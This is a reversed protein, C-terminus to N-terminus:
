GLFAAGHCSAAGIGLSFGDGERSRGVRAILEVVPSGAILELVEGDLTELIPIRNRQGDTRRYCRGLEGVNGPALVLHVPRSGSDVVVLLHDGHGGVGVLFHIPLSLPRVIGRAAVVASLPRHERCSSLM